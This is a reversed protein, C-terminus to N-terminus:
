TIPTSNTDLQMVIVKRGIRTSGIALSLDNAIALHLYLNNYISSHDFSWTDAMPEKFEVSQNLQPFQTLSSVSRLGYTFLPSLQNSLDLLPIHCASVELITAGM